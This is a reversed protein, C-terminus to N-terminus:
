SSKPRNLSYMLCLIGDLNNFIAGTRYSGIGGGSPEKRSNMLDSIVM